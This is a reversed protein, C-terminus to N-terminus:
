RIKIGKLGLQESLYKVIELAGPNDVHVCITDVKIEQYNGTITKVNGNKIMSYVHEYIQEPHFLVSDVKNRGVLQLNDEYARDAFGEYMLEFGALQALDAIISGFPVYLQFENGFGKVVDIMLEAVEQNTIAEIYLAGHPKIHNMKEGSKEVLIKFTQIQNRLSITLEQHSIDIVKRGFNVRDPYSPHAGIKVNHIIALEITKKMTFLDGAHAGCAINCSSIFPMVAGDNSMGEGVDCNLDIQKM